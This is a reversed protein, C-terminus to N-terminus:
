RELEPANQQKLLKGMLETVSQGAERDHKKRKISTAAEM